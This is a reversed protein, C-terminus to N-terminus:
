KSREYAHPWYNINAKLYQSAHLSWYPNRLLERGLYVLDARNSQIVENAMSPTIIKGGALVPLNTSSKITEAFKIQYGEYVTLPTPIVGGSSVNIIDISDDKVINILESLIEATNGDKHYDSASVRLMIPKQSPWVKKVEILVEKLLRARNELSGGYEDTRNNTLPSLFENILYGHAGHIEIIDFEADLARQAAQKFSAIVQHIDEKAMERPTIYKTDKVDFNLPSPAIIDEGKVECKRGAHALQIGAKAGHKKIKQVISKLGEIHSDNWIGIDKSSIRGRSEVATAELLILGVGGIARTEYHTDHWSNAHGSEDSSYMCMPPMVIRNRLALDKIKFTHFLNIM